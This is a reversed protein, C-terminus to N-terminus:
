SPGHDPVQVGFESALMLLQHWTGGAIRIGDAQASEARRYETEGPLMVEVTDDALRSQKIYEVFTETQEAYQKKDIVHDLEVLHFWIGNTGTAVDHRGFGAGSLIGCMMEVMIALGSGKYAVDGGMPLIAGTPDSYFDAPDNTPRGDTDVIQGDPVRRGNQIAIRLKGEATVCTTTDVMIARDRYPMGICIPNTGLRPQDTGYPAVRAAGNVNVMMMALFGNQVADEVYSGLRGVHCFNRGFATYSGHQSAKGYAIERLERMLIQGFGFQGDFVDVQPSERIVALSAGAQIFGTRLFPVYQTLRMIGHSPHGAADASVLEDVVGIAEQESAGASTLLDIGFARLQDVTLTCDAQKDPSSHASFASQLDKNDTMNSRYSFPSPPM